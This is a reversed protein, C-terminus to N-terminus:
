MIKLKSIQVLRKLDISFEKYPCGKNDKNFAERILGKTDM